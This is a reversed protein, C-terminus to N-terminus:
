VVMLVKFVREEQVVRTSKTQMGVRWRKLEYERVKKDIM